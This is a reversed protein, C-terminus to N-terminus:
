KSYHKMSLTRLVIYILVGTRVSAIVSANKTRVAKGVIKEAIKRMKMLVPDNSRSAMYLARLRTILSALDGVRNINGTESLYDFAHLLTEDLLVDIDKEGRVQYNDSMYELTEVLLKEPMTHMAGAVVSVLEPKIFDRKNGVVSQIYRKYQTQNRTQDRVTAYGDLDITGVNATGIKADQERIRYFVAMMNKVIERIRGQIDSVMYTVADDDDFRVITNYHISKKSIIDKSRALLLGSWSGHQKLAYKKSLSAYTALAVSRDAPYKFYHAMLSSLFKYHLILLANIMGEEKRSASLSRESYIAHVLWVVSLNMVDSSVQFSPNITPLSHLQEKLSYDDIELVDDFWLNRDSQRFRIPHTGMLNGGFFAISDEDRNVFAKEYQSIRRLLRSDIRVDETEKIFVSKINEAM